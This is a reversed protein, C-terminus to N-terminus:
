KYVKLILTDENLRGGAAFKKGLINKELMVETRKLTADRFMALQTEPKRLTKAYSAESVNRITTGAIALVKGEEALLVSIRRTKTNFLVVAQMGVVNAPEVSMVKLAKDEKKYTVKAVQKDVKASRISKRRKRTAKKNQEVAEIDKVIRILSERRYDTWMESDLEFLEPTKVVENMKDTFYERIYSLVGQRSKWKVLVNYVDELRQELLCDEVEGAAAYMDLMPSREKAKIANAQERLISRGAEALEALKKTYFESSHQSLPQNELVMWAVKGVAQFSHAPLVAYPATDIGRTELEKLVMSKFDDAEYADTLWNLAKTYEVKYESSAVDMGTLAPAPGFALEKNIKVM